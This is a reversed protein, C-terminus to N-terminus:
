AIRRASVDLLGARSTLGLSRWAKAWKLPMPELSNLAAEETCYNGVRGRCVLIRFWDIRNVVLQNLYCLLDTVTM